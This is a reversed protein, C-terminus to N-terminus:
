GEYKYGIGKITKITDLGTKERIKRIHVDITREGVIVDSGWIKSLIHERTIVKYSKQRLYNLLEFEKRTLLLDVGNKKVCYGEENLSVDESLQILKIKSNTNPTDKKDENIIFNRDSRKLLASVRSLLVKPKIPKPIYDDGGAKFGAIQSYDEIRATLFAIICNDLSKDKRIEECAEVGDMVPMMVDLLILDPKFEKAKAIACEGDNAKQVIYGEKKLNYELLELIDEDDDVILVKYLKEM